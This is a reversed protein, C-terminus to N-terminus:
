RKGTKLTHHTLAQSLALWADRDHAVAALGRFHQLPGVWQVAMAPYDAIVEDIVKIAKVEMGREMLGESGLRAWTRAWIDGTPLIPSLDSFALPKASRKGQRFIRRQESATDDYADLVDRLSPTEGRNAYVLNKIARHLLIADLPLFAPLWCQRTGVDSLLLKPFATGLDITIIQMAERQHM